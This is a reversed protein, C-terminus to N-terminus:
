DDSSSERVRRGLKSLKHRMGTDTIGFRFGDVMGYEKDASGQVYGKRIREPYVNHSDIQVDPNPFGISAPRGEPKSSNKPV